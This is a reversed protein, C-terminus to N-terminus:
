PQDRRRLLDVIRDRWVSDARSEAIHTDYSSVVPEVSAVHKVMRLATLIPEADDDRIDQDLVVIYAAHRDTM